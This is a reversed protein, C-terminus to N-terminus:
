KRVSHLLIGTTIGDIGTAANNGKIKDWAKKLSNKDTIREYLGM